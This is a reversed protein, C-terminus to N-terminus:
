CVITICNKYYTLKDIEELTWEADPYRYWKHLSQTSIALHASLHKIPKSATQMQDVDANCIYFPEGDSSDYHCLTGYYPLFVPLFRLRITKKQMSMTSMQKVKGTFASLHLPDMNWMSIANFGAQPVTLTKDNSFIVVSVRLVLQSSAQCGNTTCSSVQKNISPPSNTSSLLPNSLKLSTALSINRGRKVRWRLYPMLGKTGLYIAKLKFNAQVVKWTNPLQRAARMIKNIQSIKTRNWELLAKGLYKVLIDQDKIEFLFINSAMINKTEGQYGNAQLFAKLLNHRVCLENSQLKCLDKWRCWLISMTM